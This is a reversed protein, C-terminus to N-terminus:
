EDREEEERCTECIYDENLEEIKVLNDCRECRLHCSIGDADTWRQGCECTHTNGDELYGM